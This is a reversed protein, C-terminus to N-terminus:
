SLREECGLDAGVGLLWDDFFALAESDEVVRYPYGRTYGAFRLACGGDARKTIRGLFVPSTRNRWMTRGPPAAGLWMLKGVM